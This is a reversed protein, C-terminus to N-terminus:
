QIASEIEDEIDCPECIGDDNLETRWQNCAPCLVYGAAEMKRRKRAALADDRESKLQAREAELRM